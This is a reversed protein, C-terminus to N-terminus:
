EQFYAKFFQQRIDNEDVTEKIRNSIEAFSWAIHSIEKIRYNRPVSNKFIKCSLLDWLGYSFESDNQSIYINSCKADGHYIGSDHIQKLLLAASNIYVKKLNDDNEMKKFFDLTDVVNPVVERILYSNGPIGFKYEALAAIPRPTPAGSLEMARAANWVRFARAKRFIYKLTYLLGKNNFSKIFVKKGNNLTAIGARTTRSDKFIQSEKLYKEINEICETLAENIFERRLYGTFKDNKFRSFDENNKFCEKLKKEIM